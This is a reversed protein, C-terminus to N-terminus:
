KLTGEFEFVFINGCKEYVYLTTLNMVFAVPKEVRALIPKTDFANDTIIGKAASFYEKRGMWTKQMAAATSYVIRTLSLSLLQM